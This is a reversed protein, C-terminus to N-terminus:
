RRKINGAKIKAFIAAFGVVIFIAGVIPLIFNGVEDSTSYIRSPNDKYYYINIYQGRMFENRDKNSNLRAEYTKGDVEYEVDLRTEYSGTGFWVDTIEGRTYVRDDSNAITRRANNVGLYMVLAGLVICVLSVFLVKGWSTRALEKNSNKKIQEKNKSLTQIADKMENYEKMKEEITQGIGSTYKGNGFSTKM